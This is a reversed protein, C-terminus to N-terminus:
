LFLYGVDLIGGASRTIWDGNNQEFWALGGLGLSLTADGFPHYRVGPWVRIGAGSEGILAKGDSQLQVSFHRGLHLGVVADYLFTPAREAVVEGLLRDLGYGARVQAAFLRSGYAYGLLTNAGADAALPGQTPLETGFFVALRHNEGVMLPVRFNLRFSDVSTPGGGEFTLLPAYIELAYLSIYALQTLDPGADRFGAVNFLRTSFQPSVSSYLFPQLFRHQRTLEDTVWGPQTRGELDGTWHPPTTTTGVGPMLVSEQVEFLHPRRRGRWEFPYPEPEPAPDAVVVAGPGGEAPASTEPAEEITPPPPEQAVATWGWLLVTLILVRGM